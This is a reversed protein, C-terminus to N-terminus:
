TCASPSRVRCGQRPRGGSIAPAAGHGPAPLFPLDVLREIYAESSISSYTPYSLLTTAWLGRASPRPQPHSGEVSRPRPHGGQLRSDECRHQRRDGWRRVRRDGALNRRRLRARSRDVAGHGQAFSGDAASCPGFKDIFGEVVLAAIAPDDEPRALRVTFQEAEM